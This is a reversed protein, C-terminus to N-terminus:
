KIEQIIPPLINYNSDVSTANICIVNNKVIVGSSEHIHGFSHIKLEKLSSIVSSLTKSGVSIKKHKNCTIKDLVGYAPGHTILINTDKPINDWYRKLLNDDKMYAWNCFIPTWPTGYFNIGDIVVKDDILGHIGLEKCYMYFMSENTQILEDHNGPILIKNKFPLKSFWNMFNYYQNINHSFDGCHIITDINNYISKSFDLENHKSHTDSIFVVKM